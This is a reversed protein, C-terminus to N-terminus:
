ESLESGPRMLSHLDKPPVVELILVRLANEPLPASLDCHERVEAQLRRLALPSLVDPYAHLTQATSFQELLSQQDYPALSLVSYVSHLGRPEVKKEGILGVDVHPTPTSPNHDSFWGIIAPWSDDSITLKSDYAVSLAIGQWFSIEKWALEEAVTPSQPPWHVPECLENIALQATQLLDPDQTMKYLHCILLTALTQSRTTNDRGPLLLRQFDRTTGTQLLCHLGRQVNNRYRGEQHSNGAHAFALLVLATTEVASESPEAQWSGDPQQEAAFKKLAFDVAAENTTLHVTPQHLDVAEVPTHDETAMQEPPELGGWASFALLVLLVLGGSLLCWIIPTFRRM